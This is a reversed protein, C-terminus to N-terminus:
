NHPNQNYRGGTLKICQTCGYVDLMPWVPKTVDVKEKVSTTDVHENNVFTLVNGDDTYHYKVIYGKCAHKETLAKAWYGPKSNLDPIAYQPLLNPDVEDPNHNTFGYRIAGSWSSTSGKIEVMVGQLPAVPTQGFTIGHSFSETRKAVTDEECLEINKGHCTKHFRM